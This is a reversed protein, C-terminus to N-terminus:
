AVKPPEPVFQNCRVMLQIDDKKLNDFVGKCGLAKCKDPLTRLFTEKGDLDIMRIGSSKSHICIVKSM